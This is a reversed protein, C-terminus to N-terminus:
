SLWWVEHANHKNIDTNTIMLHWIVVDFVKYNLTIEQQIIILTYTVLSIIMCLVSYGKM